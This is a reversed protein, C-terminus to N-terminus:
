CGAASGGGGGGGDIGGAPAGFAPISMEFLAAHYEFLLPGGRCSHFVTVDIVAVCCVRYGLWPGPAPAPSNKSWNPPNSKEADPIPLYTLEVDVGEQVACVGQRGGRGATRGFRV